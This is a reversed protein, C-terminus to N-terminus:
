WDKTLAKVQKVMEKASLHPGSAFERMTHVKNTMVKVHTGGVDVALITKQKTRKRAPKKMPEAIGELPKLRLSGLAM